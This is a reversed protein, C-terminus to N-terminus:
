DRLNRATMEPLIDVTFVGTNQEVSALYKVRDKARLLPYFQATFHFPTFCERPAAHLAFLFPTARGFFDDYRRTIDGILDAFGTIEDDSFDWPGQLAREPAVWVEYPFRAFPPAFASIGRRATIQYTARGAEMLAALDFGQAFAQVARAQPAPVMPFGYIQGHPHLITVGAEEGRNEFPLVYQCGQAFLAQYRDIWVRVLLERRKPSLSALSGEAEPTYVVVECAGLANAAEFFPSAAQPMCLPHLSPFRNDFCAIEFDPFPIETEHELSSPALPDLHAAPKYLRNQRHGAYIAWEQRLPHFRLEARPAGNQAGEPSSAGQGIIPAPFDPGSGYLWLNRGDSKVHHHRFFSASNTSQPGNPM